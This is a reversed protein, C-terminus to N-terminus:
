ILTRILITLKMIRHKVAGLRGRSLRDLRARLEAASRLDEPSPAHGGYRLACVAEAMGSLKGRGDGELGLADSVRGAYSLITENALQRHGLAAFMVRIDRFIGELVEGSGRPAFAAKLGGRRRRILVAALVAFAIVVLAVVAIASFVTKIGGAGAATQGPANPASTGAAAATPAPAATAPTGAPSAAPTNPEIGVDSYNNSGGTPDFTVWGVGEFYLEVWAHATGTTAKYRGAGDPVLGYGTVYRSPIGIMRAMVAM